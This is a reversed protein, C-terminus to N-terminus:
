ILGIMLTATTATLNVRTCAVPLITGAPVATFLVVTGALTVLTINGVGGVYIGRVPTTFDVTNSPTIVFADQAPADGYNGPLIAM